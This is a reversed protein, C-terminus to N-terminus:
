FLVEPEKADRPHEACRGDAVAPRACRECLGSGSEAGHAGEQLGIGSWGDWNTKGNHKEKIGIHLQERM